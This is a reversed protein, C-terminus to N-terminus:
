RVLLRWANQCSGFLLTIVGVYTLQPAASGNLLATVGATTLLLTAAISALYELLHFTGTSAARYIRWHNVHWLARAFCLWVLAWGITNLSIDPMLFLLAIVLVALFDLFSRKAVFLMWRREESPATNLKMSLSVFLLGTLTAAVEGMTGFATLWNNV